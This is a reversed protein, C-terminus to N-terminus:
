VTPEMAVTTQPNTPYTLHKQKGSYIAEPRLNLYSIHATAICGLAQRLGSFCFCSLEVAIEEHQWLGGVFRGTSVGLM